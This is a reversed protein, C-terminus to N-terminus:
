VRQDIRHQNTYVEQQGTRTYLEVTYVIVKLEQKLTLPNVWQEYRHTTQQDALSRHVNLVSELKM